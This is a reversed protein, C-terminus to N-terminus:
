VASGFKAAYAASEAAKANHRQKANEIALAAAAERDAIWGQYGSVAIGQAKEIAEEQSWEGSAMTSGMPLRVYWTGDEAECVALWDERVIAAYRGFTPMGLQSGKDSRVSDGHYLKCITIM